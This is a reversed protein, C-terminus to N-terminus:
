ELFRWSFCVFLGAFGGCSDVAAVPERVIMSLLRDVVLEELTTDDSPEAAGDAEM